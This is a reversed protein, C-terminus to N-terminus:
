RGVKRRLPRMVADEVSWGMSLRARITSDGIGTERGWDSICLTRGNVTLWRNDSKNQAQEQRTAWRVNGPEYNRDNDIRDISHLPSPRRGTHALFRAYGDEGLWESCVTIGRGAYRPYKPNTPTFCRAKMGMWARYEPTWAGDVAEGHKVNLGRRNGSKNLTM